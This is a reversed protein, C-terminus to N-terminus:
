GANNVLVDVSGFREIAAAALAAVDRECSVDAQFSLVEVGLAAVEAETAATEVIGVLVLSCGEVALARAIAAGLGRAAGTVVATPMDSLGRSACSSAKWRM